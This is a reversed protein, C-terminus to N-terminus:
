WELLFLESEGNATFALSRRAQNSPPRSCSGRNEGQVLLAKRGRKAQRKRAIRCRPDCAWVLADLSDPCANKGPSLSLRSGGRWDAYAFTADEIRQFEERTFYDTPVRKEEAKKMKLAPNKDLWDNGICFEFFGILREHKAAPPIPAM